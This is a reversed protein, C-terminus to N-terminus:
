HCLTRSSVQVMDLRTIGAFMTRMPHAFAARLCELPCESFIFHLETVMQCTKSIVGVIVNEDSIIDKM